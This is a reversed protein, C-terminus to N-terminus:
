VFYNLALAAGAGVLMAAPITLGWAWLMEQAVGWRVKSVREGAGAGMITSSIVQTTSVPGGLLAAGLIVVTSAVHATFGHVPRVTYMKGGITRILRWGGLLTGLSIAAASVAIVWLPVEFNPLVGASVLGLTIIGMTKQSDNTGHSLGLGICTIMQSTRLFFNINPSSDRALYFILRLMMFGMVFGALPAIFLALLVKLLGDLYIANVGSSVLVAGLLGGVLAHSSSSPVAILWTLRNWAIAAVVGALVVPVTVAHPEVLGKGVTTAVAVGFFFPGLFQSVATLVLARRPSMARSAIATAVISASDNFGNFFDFLLAVGILVYLM